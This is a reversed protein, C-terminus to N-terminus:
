QWTTRIAMTKVGKMDVTRASAMDFSMAVEDMNILAGFELGHEEMKSRVFNRFGESKEEWDAPLQQAVTTPVRITLNKRSMFKFVWNAGGVFDELGLEGALTRAHLKIALTSVM